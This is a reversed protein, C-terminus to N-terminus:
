HYNDEKIVYIHEYLSFYKEILKNIQSKGLLKKMRAFLRGQEALFSIQFGHSFCRHFFLLHTLLFAAIIKTRM